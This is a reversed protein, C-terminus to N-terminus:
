TVSATSDQQSIRQSDHVIVHLHLPLKVGAAARSCQDSGFSRGTTPAQAPPAGACAACMSSTNSQDWIKCPRGAGRMAGPQLMAGLGRLRLATRTHPVCSHTASHTCASLWPACALELLTIHLVACCGTCSHNSANAKSTHLATQTSQLWSAVVHASKPICISEARGDIRRVAETLTIHHQVDCDCFASVRVAPPAHRCSNSRHLPVLKLRGFLQQPASVHM